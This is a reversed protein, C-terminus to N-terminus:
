GSSLLILNQAHHVLETTVRRQLINLHSKEHCNTAITAIPVSTMGEQEHAKSEDRCNIQHLSTEVSSITSLETCRFTRIAHKNDGENGLTNCEAFSVADTAENVSMLKNTDLIRGRLSTVLRNSISDFKFWFNYPQIICLGVLWALLLMRRPRIKDLPKRSSKCTEIIRNILEFAFHIMRFVISTATFISLKRISRSHEVFTSPLFDRTRNGSDRGNSQSDEHHELRLM